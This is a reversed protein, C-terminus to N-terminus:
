RLPVAGSSVMRGQKGLAGIPTVQFVIAQHAADSRPLEAAKFVCTVGRLDHSEALHFAPSLVTRRRIQQGPRDAFAVGVEYWRARAGTSMKLVAPWQVTYIAEGRKTFGPLVRISVDSPFEPVSDAFPISTDWPDAVDEPTKQTFDLRRIVARDGYDSVLLGQAAKSAAAKLGADEIGSPLAVGHMSGACIAKPERPYFCLEDTLPLKRNGYFTLVECTGLPRKASTAFAFGNVEHRGEDTILKASSDKFVKEWMRNLTGIQASNGNQTVAGTLVVADVKQQRYFAFARELASLNAGKGIETDALVGIRTRVRMDDAIQMVDSVCGAFLLLSTFLLPSFPFLASLSM